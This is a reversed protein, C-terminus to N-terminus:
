LPKKYHARVLEHLDELSLSGQLKAFDEDTWENVQCELVTLTAGGFFIENHIYDPPKSYDGSLVIYKLWEWRSRAIVIAQCAIEVPIREGLWIALHDESKGFPEKPEYISATYGNKQLDKVLEKSDILNVCKIPYRSLDRRKSLTVAQKSIDEKLEMRMRKISDTYSQKEPGVVGIKMLDITTEQLKLIKEISQSFSNIEEIALDAANSRNESVNDILGKVREELSQIEKEQQNIVRRFVVTSKDVIEFREKYYEAQQKSLLIFESTAKKFLYVLYGFAIALFAIWVPVLKLLLDLLKEMKDDNGLM